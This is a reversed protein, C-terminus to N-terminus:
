EEELGGGYCDFEVSPWEIVLDVQKGYVVKRCEVELKVRQSDDGAYTELDDRRMHLKEHEEAARHLCVAATLLERITARDVTGAVFAWHKGAPISDSCNSMCISTSVAPTQLYMDLWSAPSTNLFTELTSMTNTNTNIGYISLCSSYVSPSFICGDLGPVDFSYSAYRVSQPVLNNAKIDQNRETTSGSRSPNQFLARQLHISTTITYKFTTGIRQALLIDKSPLGLLIM